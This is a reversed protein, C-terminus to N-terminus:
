DFLFCVCFDHVRNRAKSTEDCSGDPPISNLYQTILRFVTLLSESSTGSLTPEPFISGKVTFGRLPGERSRGMLARKCTIRDTPEKCSLTVHGFRVMDIM